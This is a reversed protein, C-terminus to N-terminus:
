KTTVFIPVEIGFVVQFSQAQQRATFFPDGYHAMVYPVLRLAQRGPHWYSIKVRAYEFHPANTGLQAGLEVRLDSLNGVAGVQWSLARKQPVDRLYVTAGLEVAALDSWQYTTTFLFSDVIADRHNTYVGDAGRHGVFHKYSISGGWNKQWQLESKLSLEAEQNDLDCCESIKETGLALSIGGQVGLQWHLIDEAGGRLFFLELQSYPAITFRDKPLVAVGIRNTSRLTSNELFLSETSLFPPSKAQAACSFCVSLLACLLLQTRHSFFWHPLLPYSNAKM